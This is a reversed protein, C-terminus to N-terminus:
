PRSAVPSSKSAQPRFVILKRVIYVLLFSVIIAGIKPWHVGAEFLRSIAWVVGSTVAAGGLGTLVFLGFEAAQRKHLWGRPFVFRRSAWYHVLAGSLYGIAAAAVLTMGTKSALLGLYIAYDVALAGLSVLFYRPLM